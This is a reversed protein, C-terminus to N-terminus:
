GFNTPNNKINREGASTMIDVHCENIAESVVTIHFTLLCSYNCNQERSIKLQAQQRKVKAQSSGTQQTNKDSHYGAIDPDTLLALISSCPDQLGALGLM